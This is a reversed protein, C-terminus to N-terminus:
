IMVYEICKEYLEGCGLERLLFQVFIVDLFM